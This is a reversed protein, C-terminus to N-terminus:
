VFRRDEKEEKSIIGQESIISVHKHYNSEQKNKRRNKTYLFPLFKFM